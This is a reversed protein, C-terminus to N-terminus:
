GVTIVSNLTGYENTTWNECEPDVCWQGDVIFKYEYTGAPLMMIARYSGHKPSFKLAKHTPNWDNFTGAVFMEHGDEGNLEFCVRKRGATPTAM